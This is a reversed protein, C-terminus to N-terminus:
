TLADGSGRPPEGGRGMQQTGEGGMPVQTPCSSWKRWGGKRAMWGKQPEIFGLKLNLEQSSPYGSQHASSKM